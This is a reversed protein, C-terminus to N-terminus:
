VQAMTMITDNREYWITWLTIGRFLHWIKTKKGYIKPIRKGFLTQKWNFSDYYGTTVGCLVHMILTAWRWARTAQICDWFKHKVSENMNPLCFVYYKSILALAIHARWENVVVVKDQVLWMFAADKESCLSDQVQSQYFRYNDLIYGQWKDEARTTEPNKNIISDKGDKITCVFFRGEDIWHWQDPVWGLTALKEYFFTIQKKEWENKLGKNTQIIKVKHFFSAM